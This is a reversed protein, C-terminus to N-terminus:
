SVNEPVYSAYNSPASQPDFDYRCAPHGSSVMQQPQLTAYPAAEAAGIKKPRRASGPRDAAGLAPRGKLGRGQRARGAADHTVALTLLDDAYILSASLSRWYGDEQHGGPSAKAACQVSEQRATCRSAPARSKDHAAPTTRHTAKKGGTRRRCGETSARARAGDNGCISFSLTKSRYDVDRLERLHLRAYGSSRTCRASATPDGRFPGVM